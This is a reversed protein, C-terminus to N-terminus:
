IEKRIRETNLEHLRYIEIAKGMRHRAILKLLELKRAAADDGYTHKLNELQRLLSSAKGDIGMINATVYHSM